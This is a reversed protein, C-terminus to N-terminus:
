LKVKKMKKGGIHSWGNEKLSALLEGSKCSLEKAKKEIHIIDGIDSEKVFAFLDIHAQRYVKNECSLEGLEKRVAKLARNRYQRLTGGSLDEKHSKLITDVQDVSIWGQETFKEIVATYASKWNTTKRETLGLKLKQRLEPTLLGDRHLQIIQDVLGEPSSSM